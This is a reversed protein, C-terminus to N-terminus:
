RSQKARIQAAVRRAAAKGDVQGSVVSQMLREDAQSVPIGELRCSGAIQSAVYGATKIRVVM